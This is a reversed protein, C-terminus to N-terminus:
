KQLSKEKKLERVQTVVTIVLFYYAYVAAGEAWVDKKFILLFPCAALLLLAAGAAIRSDLIFLASILAYFLVLFDIVGISKYFALASIIIIFIIKLWTRRDLRALKSYAWNFYQRFKQAAQRASNSALGIVDGGRWRLDAKFTLIFLLTFFIIAGHFAPWYFFSSWTRSFAAIILSLFYFGLFYFYTERIKQKVEALLIKPDIKPPM